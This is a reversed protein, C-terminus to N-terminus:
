FFLLPAVLALKEVHVHLGWAMKSPSEPTSLIHDKEKKKKKQKRSLFLSLSLLFAAASNRTGSNVKADYFSFFVFHHSNEKEGKSIWSVSPLFIVLLCETKM